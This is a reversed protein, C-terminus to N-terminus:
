NDTFRFRWQAEFRMKGEETILLLGINNSRIETIAGTTSDWEVPISCKKFFTGDRRVSPSTVNGASESSIALFNISVQKDLFIQFRGTNALNNFSKFEAAELLDTVGATAGNAQKDLYLIIRITDGPGPAASEALQPLICKYRMQIAVITCKRGVRQVETVGQPIKVLSDTIVGTAAVAADATVPDHFKREPRSRRSTPAYRGYFGVRRTYGKVVRARKRYTRRKPYTRRTPARRRKRYYPM